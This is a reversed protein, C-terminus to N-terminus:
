QERVTQLKETYFKPKSMVLKRLVLINSFISNTKRVDSLECVEKPNRSTNWRPSAQIM